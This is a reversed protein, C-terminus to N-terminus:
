SPHNNTWVTSAPHISPTLELL